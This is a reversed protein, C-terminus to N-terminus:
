YHTLFLLDSHLTYVRVVLYEYIDVFGGARRFVVFVSFRKLGGLSHSQDLLSTFHSYSLVLDQPPIM